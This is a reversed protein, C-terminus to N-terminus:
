YLYFEFRYLCDNTKALWLRTIFRAVVLCDAGESVFIFGAIIGIVAHQMLCKYHNRVNSLASYLTKQHWTPPGATILRQRDKVVSM